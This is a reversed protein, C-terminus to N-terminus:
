KSTNHNYTEWGMYKGLAEELVAASKKRNMAVHHEYGNACIHKMLGQLNPVKCVAVGGLTSIPDSTFEGDGFYVKIKGRVDDTSIKAFTMDGEAVNAKCAGFCKDEGLSNGLIDLHSIEFSQGIFSKPYNSCHIGICKDRDNGYNNNWDLYGAPELSALYLAYMTVGGLVDAECAMPIGQEGLMSMPLCTACGYNMQISDWCQMTGAVCENEEMWTKVTLYLKASKIISEQAANPAVKGYAKIEEVTQLVKEDVEMSQAKAIIQSLDIPIVTIGSQQLLKESYRVTQFPQPRTGIQAVRATKLGKVVRCVRAFFHIDETFVESKISCTHLTTDTFQIGYQYFNNCVSLKGCFADRRGSLGMDNLDDDCAQVLIPVNLKALHIANVIGVEDGFNPLSVIIGDIKEENAKFLKACKKADELTEVVGYQTEEPTLCVAGYGLTDLKALLDARGQEALKSNFFGRTGVIVGFTVKKMKMDEKKIRM